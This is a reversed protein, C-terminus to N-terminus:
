CKPTVGLSSILILSYNEEGYPEDKVSQLYNGAKFYNESSDCEDSTFLTKGNETLTVIGKSMELKFKYHTELHCSDDLIQSKGLLEETVYGSINIRVDGSAQHADGYFQVRILDDYDDEKAHIQLISPVGSRLLRDVSVTANM